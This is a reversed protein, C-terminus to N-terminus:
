EKGDPPPYLEKVQYYNGDKFTWLHYVWDACNGNNIDMVSEILFLPEAYLVACLRCSATSIAGLVSSSVAVLRRKGCCECERKQYHWPNKRM